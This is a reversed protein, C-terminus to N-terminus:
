RQKEEDSGTTCYKQCKSQGAKDEGWEGTDRKKKALTKMETKARFGEDWDDKKCAM